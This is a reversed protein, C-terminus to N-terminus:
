IYVTSPNEKRLFSQYHQKANPPDPTKAILKNALLLLDREKWANLQTDVTKRLFDLEKIITKFSSTESKM